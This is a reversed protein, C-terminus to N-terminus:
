VLLNQVTYFVIHLLIWISFASSPLSPSLRSHFLCSNFILNQRDVVTTSLCCSHTPNDGHARVETVDCSQYIRYEALSSLHCRDYLIYVYRYIYIFFLHPYVSSLPFPRTSSVLQIPICVTPNVTSLATVTTTIPHIYYFTVTLTHLSSILVV